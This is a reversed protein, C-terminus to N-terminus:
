RICDLLCYGDGEDGVFDCRSYPGVSLDLDWFIEGKRNPKRPLESCPVSVRTIQQPEFTFTPDNELLLEQITPVSWLQSAFAECRLASTEVASLRAAVEERALGGVSYEVIHLGEGPEFNFSLRTRNGATVLIGRKVETIIGDGEARVDYVGVPLQQDGRFHCDGGYGTTVETQYFVEGDKICSMMAVIGVREGSFSAGLTGTDQAHSEPPGLLAALIFFASSPILFRRSM